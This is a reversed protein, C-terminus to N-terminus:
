LAVLVDGDISRLDPELSLLALVDDDIGGAMLLEELIHDGARGVCFRRQEENICIFTHLFLRATVAVEQIEEANALDGHEDVFHVQLPIRLLAEVFEFALVSFEKVGDADFRFLEHGDGGLV